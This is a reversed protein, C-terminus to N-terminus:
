GYMRMYVCVCADIYEHVLTYVNICVSMGCLCHRMCQYLCGPACVCTICVCAYECWCVWIGVCICVNM